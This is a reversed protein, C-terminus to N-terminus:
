WPIPEHLKLLVAREPTAVNTDNLRDLASARVDVRLITRQSPEGARRPADGRERGQPPM